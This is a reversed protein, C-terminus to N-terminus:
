ESPTSGYSEYEIRPTSSGSTSIRGGGHIRQIYTTTPIGHTAKPIEPKTAATLSRVQNATTGAAMSTTPGMAKQLVTVIATM